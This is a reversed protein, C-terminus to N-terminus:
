RSGGFLDVPKAKQKKRPVDAFADRTYGRALRARAKEFTVPDMESTICRRGEIACALATTGGGAFPDVVLDGPRTYDRVIARMLHLPKAGMIGTGREPASEYWGPLSGWSMMREERPRSPMFYVAGPAPGDGMLRPKHQLVPIPPFDFRGWFRAAARYDPALVDDCFFCAWTKCRGGQMWAQLLEYASSPTMPEYALVARYAGGTGADVAADSGEHTRASYPPDTIVADCTTVDALV